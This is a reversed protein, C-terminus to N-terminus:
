NDYWRRNFSREEREGSSLDSCTKDTVQSALSYRKSNSGTAVLTLNCFAIRPTLVRQVMGWIVRPWCCLKGTWMYVGVRTDNNCTCNM